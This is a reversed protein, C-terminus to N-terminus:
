QITGRGASRTRTVSALVANGGPHKSLVAIAVLERIRQTRDTEDTMGLAKAAEVIEAIIPEAEAPSGPVFERLLPAYHGIVEAWSRFTAIM